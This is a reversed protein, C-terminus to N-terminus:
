LDQWGPPLLAIAWSDPPRWAIWKELSHRKEILRKVAREGEARLEIVENATYSGCAVAHELEDEDKWSWSSFDRAVVIDIGHEIFDFGTSTRTLPGVLDVYWFDVEDSADIIFLSVAHTFGSDPQPGRLVIRRWKGWNSLRSWGELWGLVPKHRFGAIEAHRANRTWHAEGPRHLLAVEEPTDHIVTFAQCFSVDETRSGDIRIRNRYAIAQGPLFRV